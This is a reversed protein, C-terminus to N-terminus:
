FNCAITTDSQLKPEPLLCAITKLSQHPPIKLKQRGFLSGLVRSIPSCVGEEIIKLDFPLFFITMKFNKVNKKGRRSSRWEAESVLVEEEEEAEEVM